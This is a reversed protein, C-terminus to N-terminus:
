RPRRPPLQARRRVLAARCSTSSSGVSIESCKGNRREAMRAPEPRAQHGVVHHLGFYLPSANVVGHSAGSCRKPM